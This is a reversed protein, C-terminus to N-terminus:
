PHTRTQRLPHSQLLNLFEAGLYFKHHQNFNLNKAVSLDFTFSSPARFTNRGVAGDNGDMALLDRPNVGPALRLRISTDGEAPAVILGNTNDLRDTLNGDRNIDFASNVTFPQGTQATLIGAIQWGGLGKGFARRIFPIEWPVDYLLHTVGRWRVNNSSKM